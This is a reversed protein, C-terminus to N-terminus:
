DEDDTEKKTRPDYESIITLADRVYRDALAVIRVRLARDDIERGIQPPLQMMLQRFSVCAHELERLIIDRELLSGEKQRFLLEAHDARM